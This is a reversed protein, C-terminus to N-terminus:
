RDRSKIDLIIKQDIQEKKKDGRNKQMNAPVGLIKFIVKEAKKDSRLMAPM